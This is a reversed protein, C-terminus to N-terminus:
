ITSVACGGDISTYDSANHIAQLLLLMVTLSSPKGVAVVVVVVVVVVVIIIIIIIILLLLAKNCSQCVCCSVIRTDFVVM